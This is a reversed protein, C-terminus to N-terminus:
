NFPHGGLELAEELAISGHGGCAELNASSDCIAQVMALDQQDDNILDDFGNNPDPTIPPPSMVLVPQAPPPLHSGAGGGLSAANMPSEYCSDIGWNCAANAASCLLLWVILIKM